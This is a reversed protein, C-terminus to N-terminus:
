RFILFFGLTIGIGLLAGMIVEAYTHVKIVVRSQAILAALVLGIVSVVFM